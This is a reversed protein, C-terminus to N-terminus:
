PVADGEVDLAGQRMLDGEIQHGFTVDGARVFRGVLGMDAHALPLDHDMLAREEIRARAERQVILSREIPHEASTQRRRM